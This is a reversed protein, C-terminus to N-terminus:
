LTVTLPMLLYVYGEVAGAKWTSASGNNKFAVELTEADEPLAKLFDSLFDPNFIDKFDKNSDAVPFLPIEETAEGIDAGKCFLRLMGGAFTLKVARANEPAFTSVKGLAETFVARNFSYRRKIKKEEPFVARYDPFHGEIERSFIDVRVGNMADELTFRIFPSDKGKYIKVDQGPHLKVASAVRELIDPRIIVCSDAKVDGKVHEWALRKGDSAVVNVAGTKVVTELLIETLSYRVAETSTAFEVRSYAAALSEGSVSGLFVENKADVPYIVPYESADMGSVKAADLLLSSSDGPTLRLPSCKNAKVIKSLTEANVAVTWAGADDAQALTVRASVELDTAELTFSGNASVKVNSLMPINSRKPAVKGVVRLADVLSKRDIMTSM